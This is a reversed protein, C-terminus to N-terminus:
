IRKRRVEILDSLEPGYFTDAEKRWSFVMPDEQTVLDDLGARSVSYINCVNGTWRPVEVAIEDILAEDRETMGPTPFVALLDIDSDANSSGRAVSGFLALTVLAERAPDAYKTALSSIRLKLELVVGDASRVAIEIAQWLLHDRNATYLLSPGSSLAIVTGQRVLRALALRIGPNSGSEALEAVRSGSLPSTTRALVTYVEGELSPIIAKVPNSLDM